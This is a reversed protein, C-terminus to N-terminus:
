RDDEMVAEEAGVGVREVIEFEEEVHEEINIKQELEDPQDEAVPM